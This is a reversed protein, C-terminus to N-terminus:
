DDDEDDDLEDWDALPFLIKEIRPRKQKREYILILPLLTKGQTEEGLMDKVEDIVELVEGWLEGQGDKFENLKKRKQKGLDVIIPQSVEMTAQKDNSKTSKAKKEAM